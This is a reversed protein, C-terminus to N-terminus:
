QLESTHEESRTRQYRNMKLVCRIGKPCSLLVPKHGNASREMPSLEPVCRVVPTTRRNCKGTPATGDETRAMGSWASTPTDPANCVPKPKKPWRRDSRRQHDQFNQPERKESKPPHSLYFRHWALLTLFPVAEARVVASAIRM